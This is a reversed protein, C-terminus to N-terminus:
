PLFIQNIGLKYGTQFFKRKLKNYNDRNDIFDFNNIDFFLIPFSTVKNLFHLYRKNLKQLYEETIENEYERGRKKINNLLKGTDAHLYIYLDPQPLSVSFIDYIQRFLRYEDPKLTIGAFIDSKAFYYDAILFLSLHNKDSLRNKIQNYRSVLFSIELPFSYRERDKYFKSLFPNDEYQELVPKTNYDEALMTALTTKGSGINGEIVIFQM